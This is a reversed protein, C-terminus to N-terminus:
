SFRSTTGISFRPTFASLPPRYPFLLQCNATPLQCNVPLPPLPRNSIPRAAAHCSCTVTSLDVGESRRAESKYNAKQSAKRLEPEIPRGDGAM